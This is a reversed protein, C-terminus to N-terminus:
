LCNGISLRIILRAECQLQYCDNSVMTAKLDDIKKRIEDNETAM